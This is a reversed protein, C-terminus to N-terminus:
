SIPNRSVFNLFFVFFMEWFTGKNAAKHFVHLVSPLIM